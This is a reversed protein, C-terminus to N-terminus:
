NDRNVMDKKTNNRLWRKLLFVAVNYNVDIGLIKMDNLDVGHEDWQKFIYPIIKEPVREIVDDIDEKEMGATCECKGTQFM